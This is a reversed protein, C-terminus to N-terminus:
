VCLTVYNKRNEESKKMLNQYHESAVLKARIRSIRKRIVVPTTNFREAIEEATFGIITRTIIYASTKDLKEIEKALSLTQMHEEQTPEEILEEPILQEIEEDDIVNPTSISNSCFEIKNKIRYRKRENDFMKQLYVYTAVEDNEPPCSRVFTEKYKWLRIYVNQVLDESLAINGTKKKAYNNLAKNYKKITKTIYIDFKKDLAQKQKAEFKSVLENMYNTTPM